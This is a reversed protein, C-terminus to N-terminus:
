VEPEEIVLDDEEPLLCDLHVTKIIIEGLEEEAVEAYKEGLNIRDKCESCFLEDQEDNYKIKVNSM